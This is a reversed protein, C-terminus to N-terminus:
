SQIAASSAALPLSRSAFERDRLGAFGAALGPLTVVIGPLGPATRQPHSPSIIGVGVLREPADAIRHRLQVRPDPGAVIQEGVADRGPIGITALHNPIELVRGAVHPIVVLDASVNEEFSDDISLPALQDSM